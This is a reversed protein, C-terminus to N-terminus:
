TKNNVIKNHYQDLELNVQRLKSDLDAYKETAAQMGSDSGKLMEAMIKQHQMLELYHKRFSLLANLRGIDNAKTAEKASWRSYIAALLAVLAAIVAIVDSTSIDIISEKFNLAQNLHARPIV